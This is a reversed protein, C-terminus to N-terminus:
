TEKINEEVEGTTLSTLMQKATNADSFTEVMGNKPIRVIITVKKYKDDESM